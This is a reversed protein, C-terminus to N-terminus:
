DEYKKSLEEINEPPWESVEMGFNLDLSQLIAKIENLSKRGFNPTRLMDNESRIVLDGIYTIAENKLCNQSRVSLELEDVKKLLVPNFPLSVISDEEHEPTAVTEDFNIFTTMQEKIIKAAIGVSADPTITGNTEVSLVLKDYDILEGVRSKEVNFSVRKIPSFVADIYIVGIEKNDNSILASDRYGKGCEVVLEAKFTANEDLTCIYQEPNLITVGEPLKIDSAKVVGKGSVEITAKKRTATETALIVSKLNLLIDVVEERIGTIVDQEHIVGEIKVEVFAAGFISSLLVRRLTNGVTTGFGRELPEVIIKAKNPNDEDIKYSVKSPKLFDKWNEALM